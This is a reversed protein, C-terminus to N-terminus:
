VWRVSFNDQALRANTKKVIKYWDYKNINMKELLEKAGCREEPFVRTQLWRYFKTFHVRDTDQTPFLTAPVEIGTKLNYIYDGNKEAVVTDGNLIQITYNKSM